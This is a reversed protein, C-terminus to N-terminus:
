QQKLKPTIYIEKLEKCCQGSSGIKGHLHLDSSETNKAGFTKILIFFNRNTRFSTKTSNM